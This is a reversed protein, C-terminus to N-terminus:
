DHFLLSTLDMDINDSIDFVLTEYIINYLGSIM